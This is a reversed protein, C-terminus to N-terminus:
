AKTGAEWVMRVPLSYTTHALYTSLSTSEFSRSSCCSAWSFALPTGRPNISLGPTNLIVPRFSPTSHMNMLNASSACSKQLPQYVLHSYQLEWPCWYVPSITQWSDWSTWCLFICFGVRPCSYSCAGTHAPTWGAPFCSQLSPGLPGPPCWNFMLWCYARMVFVALLRSTQRLFLMAPPHLSEEKGNLGPHPWVQLVSDLQPNRLKSSLIM